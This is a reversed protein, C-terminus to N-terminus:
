IKPFIGFFNEMKTKLFREEMTPLKEIVLKASNADKADWSKKAISSINRSLNLSYLFKKFDEVSRPKYKLNFAIAPFLETISANLTTDVRELLYQKFRLM